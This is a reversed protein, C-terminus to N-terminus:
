MGEKLANRLPGCEREVHDAVLDSASKVGLANRAIYVFNRELQEATPEPITEPAMCSIKELAAEYRACEDALEVAARDALRLAHQENRLEDELRAVEATLEAIRAAQEAIHKEQWDFIAM